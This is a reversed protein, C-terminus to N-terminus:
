NVLLEEIFVYAQTLLSEFTPVFIPMVLFLLVFGAIMTIPFGVAFINLQPSSRTMVGMTLNAILLGTVVPIAIVIAGIFMTSAWELLSWVMTTDFNLPAIPLTLFSQGVIAVLMLHGDFALFLLTAVIVFFQSVVPVQIGNQPDMMQAFGLGMTMAIVEGAMTAANFMLQLVFGMAIGIVFQQVLVLMGSISLVDYAPVPPVVPFLALTIAFAALVRVRIPILRSGFVPAISFMAAIRVFIWLFDNVWMSIQEVTIVIAPM